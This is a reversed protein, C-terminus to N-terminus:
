KNNSGEELFIEETDKVKFAPFSLRDMKFLFFQKKKSKLVTILM